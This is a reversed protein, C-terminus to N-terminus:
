RLSPVIVIEFNLTRQKATSNDQHLSKNKNFRIAMIQRISIYLFKILLRM